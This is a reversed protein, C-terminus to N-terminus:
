HPLVSVSRTLTRQSLRANECLIAVYRERFVEEDFETAPDQAADMFWLIARGIRRRLSM